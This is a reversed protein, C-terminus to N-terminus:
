TAIRRELVQGLAGIDAVIDDAGALQLEERSGFGWLVGISKIGCAKAGRIDHLRDGVMITCNADLREQVTIHRLLVRKDAREGSLESGYVRDFYPLLGFHEIIRESYITPKSTAVFLTVGRGRLEALLAPIEAFLENEFLGVTSFRERYLAVGRDILETDQTDLVQAFGQHIPPGILSRLIAEDRQVGLIGLAHQWCRVIGVAPNTLTGDLDFLVTYRKGISHV